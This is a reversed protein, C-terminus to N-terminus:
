QPASELLRSPSFSLFFVPPILSLAELILSFFCDTVPHKMYFCTMMTVLSIHINQTM